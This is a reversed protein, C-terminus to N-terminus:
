FLEPRLVEVSSVSLVGIQQDLLKHLNVLAKEIKEEDSISIVIVMDQSASLDGGRRWRQGNGYGAMASIVTYGTMGAEELITSARRLAMREIILELRKKAHM